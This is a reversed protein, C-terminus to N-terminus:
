EQVEVGYLKAIENKINAFDGTDIGCYEGDSVTHYDFNDLKNLIVRATEKKVYQVYHPYVIVYEQVPQTAGYLEPKMRFEEITLM